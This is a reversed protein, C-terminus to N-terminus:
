GAFEFAPHGVFGSNRVVFTCGALPQQKLQDENLDKKASTIYLDNLHKGGFACSTVKAVPLRITLLKEGTTPDWRAVQWGDWHGIWLMGESDITMGDPFGEQRPVNIVIRKNSINGTAKDYDFAVVSLTPSDIYFLLTHDNNWAIGNSVTVGDIKKTVSLNRELVYLNGAAEDETFAMTGAWFRGAPDCKGDNFRNNELHAEPNHLYEIKGDPLDISAFGNQL